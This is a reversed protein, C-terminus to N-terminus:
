VSLHSDDYTGSFEMALNFVENNLETPRAPNTETDWVQGVLDDVEVMSMGARVLTKEYDLWTAIM